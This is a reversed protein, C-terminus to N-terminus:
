ELLKSPFVRGPKALTAGTAEARVHTTRTGSDFRGPIEGPSLRSQIPLIASDICGLNRVCLNYYILM